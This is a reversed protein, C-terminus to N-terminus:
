ISAAKRLMISVRGGFGCAQQILPELGVGVIANELDGPQHEQIEHFDLRGPGPTGSSDTTVAVSLSRGLNSVSGGPIRSM